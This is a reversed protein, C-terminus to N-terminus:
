SPRSNPRPIPFLLFSASLRAASSPKSTKRKSPFAETGGASHNQGRKNEKEM